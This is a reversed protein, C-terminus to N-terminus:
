SINFSVNTTVTFTGTTSGDWPLDITLPSVDLTADGAALTLTCSSTHGANDTVTFQCTKAEVSTNAPVSLQLSWNFQQSAGPDGSIAAGNNTSAGAATYASPLTIGIDDNNKTFTLKSSNSTGELTITGGAKTVGATPNNFAVFEPKGAQRVTTQVAAPGDASFTFNVSRQLRGTNNQNASAVVSTVGADGSDRDLTAWGKVLPNNNAM